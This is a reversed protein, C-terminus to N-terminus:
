RPTAGSRTAGSGGARPALSRLRENSAASLRLPAPQACILPPCRELHVSEHLSRPLLGHLISPDLLLLRRFGRADRPWHPIREPEHAGHETPSARSIRRRDVDLLRVVGIDARDADLERQRILCVGSM